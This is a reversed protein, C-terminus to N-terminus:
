PYFPSDPCLLLCKKGKGTAVLDSSRLVHFIYTSRNKMYECYKLHHFVPAVDAFHVFSHAVM